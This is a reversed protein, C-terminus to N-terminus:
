RSIRKDARRIKRSIFKPSSFLSYTPVDFIMTIDNGNAVSKIREASLKVGKCALKTKLKGDGDFGTAVYLKKGAIWLGHKEIRKTTRGNKKETVITSKASDIVLEEKWEGLREGMKLKRTDKLILSDTDCYLAGGSACISRLMFARVCGTISAATAVNVFSDIGPRYSSKKWFSLGRDKDHWCLKWQSDCECKDVEGCDECEPKDYITTVKASSYRSPNLALKGYGANVAIKNFFEEEKDGARKAALKRDYLTNSFRAIDMIRKPTYCILIKLDKVLKLEIAALLEWGSVFFRGRGIPFDVGGNKQRLPFCGNAHCEIMFLSQEAHKKPIKNGAKSEFGFWHAKTMAWPYASNIDVIKFRGPVFGLKWFQVRGGFFFPRYKGDYIEDSRGPDYEFERKMLQFVSSALTLKAPFRALFGRVMAALDFLDDRLYRLIEAKHKERVNAEFKAYDIETKKYAALKKPVIAFSDRFEVGWPTKIQVIRKGMCLFECDNVPLFELLFHFDFNGGNHFYIIGKFHKRLHTLMERVCNKGWWTLAKEGDFFGACFAEIYLRDEKFPDTELDGVAVRTKENRAM